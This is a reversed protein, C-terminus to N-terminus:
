EWMAEPAVGTFVEEMAAAIDPFVDPTLRLYQETATVSSHGLFTSLIPLAVYVDVQREAAQKLSHVAFTHRLDHLRPGSGKGGHSIGADWLVERFRRYANDATIPKGTAKKFYYDDGSSRRHVVRSYTRCTELMSPSMPVQRDKGFKSGRIQLLGDHLDVDRNLLSVAESIRLGCSYLLRVLVPMVYHMVSRRNPYLNDSCRFIRAIEDETFIYPVFQPYLPFREAPAVYADHGLTNLHLAFQRLMSVRRRNNRVGEDPRQVNWAQVVDRTLIPERVGLEVTFQSFRSLEDAEAVYKFGLAQKVAIFDAIQDAFVGAYPKV